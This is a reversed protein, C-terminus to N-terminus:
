KKKLPKIASNTCMERSVAPLIGIVSEKKRHRIVNSAHLNNVSTLISNQASLKDISVASVFANKQIFSQHCANCLEAHRQSFLRKCLSAM